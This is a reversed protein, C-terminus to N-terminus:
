APMPAGSDLYLHVRPRDRRRKGNVIKSVSLDGVNMTNTVTASTTGNTISGTANEYRVIYGYMEYDAETVTYETGTPLGTFTISEGDALTFTNSAAVPQGNVEGTLTVGQPATLAVTVEFETLANPADEGNGAVRKTVILGGVNRENIFEAEAMEGALIDGDEGTSTMLTNATPVTETVTYHTGEPIGYVTFTEGDKAYLNRQRKRGTLTGESTVYTNDVTVGGENTLTLEFEFSRETEAGSGIVTKGISLAGVNMTNTVTAEIGEAMTERAVITGNANEYDVDYVVATVYDAELGTYVTNEPLGTFKISEGDELTFTNTAQVPAGNVDGTLAVGNPATFSVTIEFADLANPADNGNGEVNKTVILDGVKRDNTFSAQYSGDASTIEGTVANTSTLEYGNENVEGQVAASEVGANTVLETVTYTTGVPIGEIFVAQGGRLTIDETSGNAITLIVPTADDSYSMYYEGNVNM